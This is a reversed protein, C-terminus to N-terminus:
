AESTTRNAGWPSPPGPDIGLMAALNRFAESDGSVTGVCGRGERCAVQGCAEPRTERRLGCARPGPGNRATAGGGFLPPTAVVRM